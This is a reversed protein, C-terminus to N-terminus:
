YKPTAPMATESAPSDPLDPHIARRPVNAVDFSIFSLLLQLGVLAPLAALM